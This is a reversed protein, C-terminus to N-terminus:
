FSVKLNGGKRVKRSSIISLFSVSAKNLLDEEGSFYPVKQLGLVLYKGQEAKGGLKGLLFLPSVSRDRLDYRGDEKSFIVVKPSWRDEM